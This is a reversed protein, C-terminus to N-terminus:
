ANATSTSASGMTNARAARGHDRLVNGRGEGSRDRPDDGTQEERHREHDRVHNREVGLVRQREALPRPQDGAVQMKVIRRHRALFVPPGEDIHELAPEPSRDADVIRRAADEAEAERQQQDSDSKQSRRCSRSQPVSAPSRATRTRSAVGTNANWITEPRVSTGTAANTASAPASTQPRRGDTARAQTAAAAAANAISVLGLASSASTPSAARAAGRRALRPPPLEQIADSRETDADGCPECVVQGLGAVDM